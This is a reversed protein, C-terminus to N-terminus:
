SNESESMLTATTGFVPEPVNLLKVEAGDVEASMGVNEAVGVRVPSSVNGLRVPTGGDICVVVSGFPATPAAYEVVSDTVPSKGIVHDTDDPDTGPPSVSFADLPTRDPVGVVAAILLKVALAVLATPTADLASLTVIVDATVTGTIVVVVSGDPDILSAYACVTLAVPVAGIVHDTAVPASGAPRVILADVPAIEPVGVVELKFANVIM